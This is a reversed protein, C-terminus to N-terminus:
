SSRQEERQSGAGGALHGSRLQGGGFSLRLKYGPFLLNCGLFNSIDFQVFGRCGEGQRTRLHGLIPKGM